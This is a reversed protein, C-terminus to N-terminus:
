RTLLRDLQEVLGDRRQDPPGTLEVVDAGAILGTDALLDQLAADMAERLAPDEDEDVPVSGSELPLVVLLDVHAMTAFTLDLCREYVVDPATPRGLAELADLYALFDLPGREAIVDAAPTLGLLRRASAGLQTVFGAADPRATDEDLLEYPDPLIDFGPRAALVDAILTSKGSAHTGSVVIRM